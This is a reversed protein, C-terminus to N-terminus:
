GDPCDFGTPSEAINVEGFGAAHVAGNEVDDPHVIADQIGVGRMFAKVSVKYIRGMLTVPCPFTGDRVMRRATAESVGLAAAAEQIGMAPPLFDSIKYYHDSGAIGSRALASGSAAQISMKPRQGSRIQEHFIMMRDVCDVEQFLAGHREGRIIEALDSDQFNAAGVVSSARLAPVHTMKDLSLLAEVDSTLSRLSDVKARRYASSVAAKVMAGRVQHVPVGKETAKWAELAAEVMDSQVDHRDVFFERSIKWSRARLVPALCDLIIMRWKEGSEVDCM